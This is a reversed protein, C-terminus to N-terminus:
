INERIVDSLSVAFVGKCKLWAAFEEFYAKFFENPKINNCDVPSQQINTVGIGEWRSAVVRIDREFVIQKYHVPVTGGWFKEPADGIIEVPNKEQLFEVWLNRIAEIDTDVVICSPLNLVKDIDYEYQLVLLACM